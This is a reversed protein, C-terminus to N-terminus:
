KHETHTTAYQPPSSENIRTDGRAPPKAKAPVRAEGDSAVVHLQRQAVHAPPPGGVV